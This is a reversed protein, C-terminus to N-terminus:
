TRDNQWTPSALRRTTLRSAALRARRRNDDRVFRRFDPDDIRPARLIRARLYGYLFAAGSIGVPRMRAFKVSKAAVWPLSFGVVYQTAGGRVRGRLLGDASGCARHHRAVIQEFTRTRYGRMRAYTQDIGDWGLLERVGGIAEFCERRYLKLAGRV